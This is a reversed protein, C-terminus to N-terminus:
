LLKLVAKTCTQRYYKTNYIVSFKGLSGVCTIVLQLMGGDNHVVAVIMGVDTFYTFADQHTEKGDDHVHHFSLANNDRNKEDEKVQVV